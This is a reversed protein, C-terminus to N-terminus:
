ARSLEMVGSVRGRITGWDRPILNFVADPVVKAYVSDKFTLTVPGAKISTIGQTEIDSDGARDSALLQRAYEATAEQLEEPIIDSPM